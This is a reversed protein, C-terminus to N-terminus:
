KSKRAKELAEYGEDTIYTSRVRGPVSAVLGLAELEGRRRYVVTYSRGLEEAWEM